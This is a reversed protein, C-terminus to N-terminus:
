KRLKLEVREHLAAENLIERLIKAKVKIDESKIKEAKIKQNADNLSKELSAITLLTASICYFSKSRGDNFNELMKKLLKIRKKQQEVLEEIGHGKIFNSNPM